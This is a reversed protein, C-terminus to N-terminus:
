RLPMVAWTKPGVVGDAKLGHARQFGTVADRTVNRFLGSAPEVGLARQLDVVDPGSMGFLLTRRTPASVPAPARAPAGTGVSELAARVLPLFSEECDEVTNGGFFASGPCTKTTGKGNTREGTELDFWHHYVIGTSDVAVGFKSALAANVEVICVRHEPRMADGGKDFNGLHEICVAGANAGKACAPAIEFDRCVAVAGDPFTTLTQGIDSWGREKMHFNRMAELREFHNSGNFDKYSPIYTHHNQIRVVKRKIHTARLWAAFEAATDFLLFQGRTKM